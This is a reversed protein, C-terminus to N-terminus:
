PKIEEFVSVGVIEIPRRKLRKIERIALEAMNPIDYAQGHQVPLRHTLMVGSPMRYTVAARFKV